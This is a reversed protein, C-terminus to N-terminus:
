EILSQATAAAALRPTIFPRGLLVEAPGTAFERHRGLSGINARDDADFLAYLRVLWDPMEFRPLRPSFEPFAPRLARGLELLSLSGATAIYRRGGAAPQEMARLHLAAVDRVDVISFRLRPVLPLWSELLRRVLTPSVGAD